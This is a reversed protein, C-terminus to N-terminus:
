KKLPINKLERYDKPQPSTLQLNATSKRNTICCLTRCSLSTTRNTRLRHHQTFKKSPSAGKRGECDKSTPMKLGAINPTHQLSEWRPRLCLGPQLRIKSCRQVGSVADPVYQIIKKKFKTHVVFPSYVKKIEKCAQKPSFTVTNSYGM